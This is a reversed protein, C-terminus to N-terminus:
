QPSRALQELWLDGASDAIGAAALNGLSGDADDDAVTGPPACGLPADTSPSSPTRRGCSFASALPPLRLGLGVWRRPTLPLLVLALVLTPVPPLLLM